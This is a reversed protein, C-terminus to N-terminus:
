ASRAGGEGHRCRDWPVSRLSEAWAAPPLMAEVSRELLRALSYGGDDALARDLLVRTRAGDGTLWCCVAALTAVAAVAGEPARRVARRLDSGAQELVAPEAHALHWLLSDRVRVDGLALVLDALLEDDDPWAEPRRTAADLGLLWCGLAIGEDRFRELQAIDYPEAAGGASGRAAGGTAGVPGGLREFLAGAAADLVEESLGAEAPAVEAVLQGRDPAVTCGLAALEREVRAAAPGDLVGGALACGTPDTCTLSWWGVGVTVLVDIVDVGAAAFSATLLEGLGEPAEVDEPPYLVVLARGAGARRIRAALEAALRELVDADDLPPLDFRGTLLLRSSRGELALVVISRQPPFGLLYPVATVAETGSQLALRVVRDFARSDRTRRARRNPM